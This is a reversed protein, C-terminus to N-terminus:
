FVIIKREVLKRIRELKSKDLTFDVIGSFSWWNILYIHRKPNELTYYYFDWLESTAFLYDSSLQKIEQPTISTLIRYPTSRFFPALSRSYHANIWIMIKERRTLHRIRFIKNLFERFEKSKSDFVFGFDDLLIFWFRHSKDNEISKLVSMLKNNIDGQPEIKYISGMSKNLQNFKHFFLYSLMTKGSNMFGITYVIAPFRTMSYLRKILDDLSEVTLSVSVVNKTVSDVGEM